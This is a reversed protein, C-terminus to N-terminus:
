PTRHLADAAVREPAALLPDDLLRGRDRATELAALAGALVPLTAAATEPGGGAPGDTILRRVDIYRALQVGLDPDPHDISVSVASTTHRSADWGTDGTIWAEALVSAAPAREGLLQWLQITDDVFAAACAAPFDAVLASAAPDSATIQRLLTPLDPHAPMTM